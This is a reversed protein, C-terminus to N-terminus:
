DQSFFCWCFTNKVVSLHVVFESWDATEKRCRENSDPGTRTRGAHRLAFTFQSVSGEFLASACLRRCIIVIKKTEKFRPGKVSGGGRRWQPPALPPPAEPLVEPKQLHRARKTLGQDGSETRQVAKPYTLVQVYMLTQLTDPDQSTQIAKSVKTPFLLLFRLFTSCVETVCLFVKKPCYSIYINVLVWYFM